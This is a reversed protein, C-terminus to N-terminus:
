QAIHINKGDKCRLIPATPNLKRLEGEIKTLKAEDALDTKNLLVKDAFCVQEESENEVGERHSFIIHYSVNYIISIIYMILHVHIHACSIPLYTM